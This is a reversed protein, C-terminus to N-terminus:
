EKRIQIKHHPSCSNPRLSIHVRTEEEPIQTAQLAISEVYYGPFKLLHEIAEEITAYSM